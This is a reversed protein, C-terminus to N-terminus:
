LLAGVSSPLHLTVMIDNDSEHEAARCFVFLKDDVWYIQAPLCRAKGDLVTPTHSPNLAVIPDVRTVPEEPVGEQPVHVDNM